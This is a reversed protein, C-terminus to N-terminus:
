LRFPIGSPTVKVGSYGNKELMWGIIEEPRDERRLMPGFTVSAVPLKGRPKGLHLWSLEVYPRINASGSRFRMHEVPPDLAITRWEREEAFAANKIMSPFFPSLRSLLDEIGSESVCIANLYSRVSKPTNGYHVRALLPFSDGVKPGPWCMRRLESYNFGLCYGGGNGAYARWMSLLKDSDCFSAVFNKRAPFIAAPLRLSSSM